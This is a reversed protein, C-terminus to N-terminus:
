HLSRKRYVIQYRCYDTIAGVFEESDTIGISNQFFTRAYPSGAGNTPFRYDRLMDYVREMADRIHKEQLHERDGDDILNGCYRIRGGQDMNFAAPTSGAPSPSDNVDGPRKIPRDWFGGTLLGSFEGNPPDFQTGVLVPDTSLLTYLHDFIASM